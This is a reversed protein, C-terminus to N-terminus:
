GELPVYLEIEIDLNGLKNIMIPRVRDWSLGGNQCGLASFAISGVEWDKYRQNFYDLGSEIYEIKSPNRWHKKTPFSLIWPNNNKYLFLKGTDLQERLCIERYVKYYKPYRKKFELALGKGCVGLCNCPNVIVQMDSDFINGQIIKIM